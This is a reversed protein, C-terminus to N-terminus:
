PTNAHIDNVTKQLAAKDRTPGEALVVVQSDPRSGADKHWFHSMALHYFRTGEQTDTWEAYSTTEDSSQWEGEVALRGRMRQRQPEDCPAPCPTVDIVFSAFQDEGNFSAQEDICVWRSSPPTSYRSKVCGWGAPVRFSFGLGDLDEMAYTQDGSSWEAGVVSGGGRAPSATPDNGGEGESRTPSPAPSTPSGPDAGVPPSPDPAPQEQWSVLLLSGSVGLVLVLVAAVVGVLLLGVRPRSAGDAPLQPALTAPVAPETGSWHPQFDPGREPAGADGLGGDVMTVPALFREAGAHRPDYVTAAWPAPGDPDAAIVPPGERDVGHGEAIAARFRDRAAPDAAAGRSLVAVTVQQGRADTGLYTIGSPEEGLRGRLQLPGLTPPDGTRLPKPM